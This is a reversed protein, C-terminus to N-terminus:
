YQIYKSRSDFINSSLWNSYNYSHYFDLKCIAIYEQTNIINGMTDLVKVSINYHRFEVLQNLHLTINNIEKNPGKLESVDFQDIYTDSNVDSSAEINIITGNCLM